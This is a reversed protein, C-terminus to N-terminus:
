TIWVGGGGQFVRSFRQVATGVTPTYIIPMLEELRDQLVRYFLHVNRNLLASLLVYKQLDDPQAQLQEHIRAAQLALNKSRV